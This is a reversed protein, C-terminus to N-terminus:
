DPENMIKERYKKGVLLTLRQKYDDLLWERYNKSCQSLCKAFRKIRCEIDDDLEKSLAKAEQLTETNDVCMAAHQELSKDLVIKSRLNQKIALKHEEDIDFTVDATKSFKARLEPPMSYKFFMEIETDDRLNELYFEPSKFIHQWNVPESWLGFRAANNGLDIVTFEDKGPLKRSGRGIMQFYLTLSKTARNLIITEVTPEDFGTTLIGVSTLIADPTKKFWQLIDKREESSSTNDLHRIDYGAERFTDYVYLSTHIGNNFILTKKGLSRETYAHLLKEQMMSNTYLDDSSKVTYDGNIGVKLSTLGVDYSYTTARALFGKDILSGITDGVILEDYSQHMPLKINSSLPTATVGLIFANKFSNLLKRFSNYHAEDIIVLGINDLHLKEDNIRNKLTEVMAVFCSYDNQDPLEKVKSNIIKNSVGFGKLMKSTQKCLEIRHTLVVVKKDNNSLYRRVIESFIVTKGGGTPLQYLLHHKPPANDLRDFIADIDGKQYAYLEKKEEREIELTNQSM